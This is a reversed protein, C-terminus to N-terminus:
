SKVIILALYEVMLLHNFQVAPFGRKWRPCLFPDPLGDLVGDISVWVGIVSIGTIYNTASELTVFVGIKAGHSWRKSNTERVAASRTSTVCALVLGGEFVQLGEHFQPAKM